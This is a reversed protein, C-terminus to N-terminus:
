CIKHTEPLHGRGTTCMHLGEPVESFVSEMVEGGLTPRELDPTLCSRRCGQHAAVKSFHQDLESLFHGLNLPVAETEEGLVSPLNRYTAEYFGM